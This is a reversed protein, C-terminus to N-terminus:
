FADNAVVQLTRAEQTGYVSIEVGEAFTHGGTPVNERVWAEPNLPDTEKLCLTGVYSFFSAAEEESAGLATAEVSLVTLPDDGVIVLEYSGGGGEAEAACAWLIGDEGATIPGNCLFGRETPYYKLSGLVDMAGLDPIGEPEEAPASAPASASAGEFANRSPDEPGDASTSPTRSAAPPTPPTQPTQGVAEQQANKGFLWNVTAFLALLLVSATLM